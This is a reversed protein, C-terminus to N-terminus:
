KERRPQSVATASIYDHQLIRAVKGQRGGDENPAQNEDDWSRKDLTILPPQDSNSGHARAKKKWTGTGNKRQPLPSPSMNTLDGLPYVELKNIIPRTSENNSSSQPLGITAHAQIKPPGVPAYPDVPHAPCFGIELDIMRLHEEFTTHLSALFLEGQKPFESIDECEMDGSDEDRPPVMETPPPPAEKQQKDVSEPPPKKPRSRGPVKIETKRFSRELEARLWTGYGQDERSLTEQNNLWFKCDKERHSLLGCWYCFNPLREYKFSIWREGGNALVLKCDRCLPKSLEVQVRVRMIRGGGFEEDAESTRVVTGMSKGLALAIDKKLAIVPLNHIQVWFTARDFVISEPEDEAELKRFAVLSKDYSWPEHLLVRELDASDEFEFLVMNEGLDRASFGRDSRWLPKFTRTVAEINIVRRTFFKAALTPKREEDPTSLQFKEEESRTLTFKRWLNDLEDM